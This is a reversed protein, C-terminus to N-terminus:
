EYHSRGIRRAQLRPLVAFCMLSGLSVGVFFHTNRTHWQEDDTLRDEGAHLAPLGQLLDDLGLLLPLLSSESRHMM